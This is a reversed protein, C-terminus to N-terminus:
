KKGRDKRLSGPQKQLGDLLKKILARAKDAFKVDVRFSLVVTEKDIKKRGSGERKGGKM